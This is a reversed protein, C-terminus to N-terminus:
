MSLLDANLASSFVSSSGGLWTFNMRAVVSGSFTSGVIKDRHWRYSKRFM